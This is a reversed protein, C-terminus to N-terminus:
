SARYRLGLLKEITLSCIIAEKRASVKVNSVLPGREWALSAREYRRGKERFTNRAM